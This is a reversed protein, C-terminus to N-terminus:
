DVAALVGVHGCATREPQPIQHPSGPQGQRSGRGQSVRVLRGALVCRVSLGVSPPAAGERSSGWRKCGISELVVLREAGPGPALPGCSGGLHKGSVRSLAFCRREENLFPPQSGHSVCGSVSGTLRTLPHPLKRPGVVDAPAPHDDLRPHLGVPFAYPVVGYRVQVGRLLVHGAGLGM